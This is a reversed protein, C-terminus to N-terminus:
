CFQYFEKLLDRARARARFILKLIPEITSVIHVHAAYLDREECICIYLHGLLAHVARIVAESVVWWWKKKIHLIYISIDVYVRAYSESKAERVM